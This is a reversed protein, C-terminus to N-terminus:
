GEVRAFARVPFSGLGRVKVPVAFFRFGTRPLAELRTLHEVIPIRAALLATHVPREGGATDDVNLSDIGVLAAGATVLREAAAATVFPHGEAYAPTGFHRSWGTCLLVARGSLESPPPLDSAEIRRRGAPAAVVVGPLDAVSELPLAALDAGDRFRHFPTDLYTGTNAAMEIRGIHFETGPAYRARSAEHTLEAGVRPPAIGPYTVLGDHIAHSLDVFRLAM